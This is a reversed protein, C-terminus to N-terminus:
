SILRPQLAACTGVVCALPVLFLPLLVSFSLGFIWTIGAAILMFLAAVIQMLAASQFKDSERLLGYLRVEAPTMLLLLGLAAVLNSFVLYFDPAYLRWLTTIFLLASGTIIVTIEVRRSHLARKLLSLFAISVLASSIPIISIFYLSYDQIYSVLSWLMFACMQIMALLGWFILPYLASRSLRLGQSRIEMESKTIRLLPVVSIATFLAATALLYLKGAYLLAAGIAPVFLASVSDAIHVNATNALVGKESSRSILIARYSMYYFGYYFGELVILLSFFGINTGHVSLLSLVGLEAVIALINVYLIRQRPLFLSLTSAAATTIWILALFLIAQSVSYGSKILLIPVFVSYLYRGIFHLFVSYDFHRFVTAENM